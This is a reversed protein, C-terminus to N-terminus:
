SNIGLQVLRKRKNNLFRKMCREIRIDWDGKWGEAKAVTALRIVEKYDHREELIKVLRTYGEHEGLSLLPHKTKHLLAIEPALEIQRRCSEITLDLANSISNRAKFNLRIAWKLAEHTEDLFSASELSKQNIRRAIANEEPKRFISTLFNLYSTVTTPRTSSKPIFIDGEILSNRGSRPHYKKYRETIYKKEDNTFSKSWWETLGFHGIYGKVQAQTDLIDKM